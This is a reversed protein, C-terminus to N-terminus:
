HGSVSSYFFLTYKRQSPLKWQQCKDREYFGVRFDIMIKGECKKKKKKQLVNFWNETFNIRAM